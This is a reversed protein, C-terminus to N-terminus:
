AVSFRTQTRSRWEGNVSAGMLRTGFSELSDLVIQLEYRFMGIRLLFRVHDSHPIKHIVKPINDEVIQDAIIDFYAGPPESIHSMARVVSSLRRGFSCM